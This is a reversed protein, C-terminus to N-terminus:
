TRTASGSRRARSSSTRPPSAPPAWTRPPRGTAWSTPRWWPVRACATTSPPASAFASARTGSARDPQAPERRRLHRAARGAGRRRPRQLEPDLRRHLRGGRLWLADRVVQRHRPQQEGRGERGVHRGHRAAGRRVGGALHDGEPAHPPPEHRGRRRVAGGRGDDDPRAGDDRAGRPPGPVRDRRPPDEAHIRRPPRARTVTRSRTGEYEFDGM